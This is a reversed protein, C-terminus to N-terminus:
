EWLNKKVNRIIYINEFLLYTVMVKRERDRTFDRLLVEGRDGRVDPLLSSNRGNGGRGLV